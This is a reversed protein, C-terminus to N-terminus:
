ALVKEYIESLRKVIVKNSHYKDYWIRGDAILKETGAKDLCIRKLGEFVELPNSANIIPPMEEFCWEHLHQNIYLLAPKRCALAKPMTSGFAGLYFQDALVETAMIYRLMKRNPQPEIWLVRESIGYEELLRKSESIMNGWKVFIAAAKPNVEKCFRAFGEIFIDNGKEWSLNRESSWHQRSPHFIIFDSNLSDHIEKSLVRTDDSCVMFEENIPHPVFRFNDLKLKEAAKINDANTICVRDANRYTLACLRGQTTEQFPISRITGHEYAVYPVGALLPFLGDTAYGHIIDYHLFLKHWLPIISRYPELDSKSLKDKREPFCRNFTDILEQIKKDYPDCPFEAQTAPLAFLKRYAEPLWCFIKLVLSYLLHFPLTVPATLYYLYKGFPYWKNKLRAPARFFGNVKQLLVQLVFYVKLVCYLSGGRRCQAHIISQWMLAKWKKGERRALLYKIAHIYIGQAFWPPRKFGKLDVDGWCPNFQDKIVGDYDADEWEPCGMIHYYDYCLVDCDFGAKNLIKANIYANNAINGIHLIRPKRGPKKEMDRGYRRETESNM